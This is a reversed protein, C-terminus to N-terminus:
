LTKGNWFLKEEKIERKEKARMLAMKKISYIHKFRNDELTYESIFVPADINAAWDYFAKHDFSSINKNNGYGGTHIYPIDCYIVSNPLIEVDRYDKSTISLKGSIPQINELQQLRELKELQELRITLNLKKCRASLLLRRKKISNFSLPWVNFGFVKAAFGDFDDFVIANHLSKKKIETDANCQYDRYNAGFSWVLRNFADDASLNDFDVKSLWPPKYSNYNYKGEISEKFLKAIGPRLENYHFNTYNNIKHLMMYHTVSGGGGLLDYFHEAKPFFMALSPIIKDKSGQYPLGFEAM